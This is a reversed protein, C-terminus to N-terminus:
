MTPLTTWRASIGAPLTIGRISEEIAIEGHSVEGGFRDKFFLLLNGYALSSYGSAYGNLLIFLPKESLVEGLLTILTPLHTEIKWVEGEPGRGFSPPDLVIADYRNGRRIERRVFAIADDLIWRIPKDSLGSAAANDRAWSLATKSGDVHTVDAGARSAFMTAGGTYGFLNLVKVERKSAGIQSEIWSWNGAQEPFVGVHKFASLKLLFTIESFSVNWDSPTVKKPVWEKTFHVDAKEWLADNGKQWVAQPDPRRTVVQNFRELKEGAGSDLLEYEHTPKTM